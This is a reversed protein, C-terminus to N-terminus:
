ERYGASHSHTAKGGLEDRSPQAKSISSLTEKITREFTRAPGEYSLKITKGDRCDLIMSARVETNDLRSGLRKKLYEVILGTAVPAGLLTVLVTALYFIDGHLALEAYNTDETALEVGMGSPAKSRLFQFLENTGVPFVPGAYDGYGEAPVLVIDSRGVAARTEDSLSGVDSWYRFGTEVETCSCFDNVVGESAHEALAERLLMKIYTQYGVGKRAALQRATELDEKSVRLTVPQSVAGGVMLNGLTLPSKQKVRQRIEAEIESRHADWWAAEKAESSFKPIVVQKMKAKAM